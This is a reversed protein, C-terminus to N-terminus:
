RTPETEHWTSELEHQTEGTLMVIRMVICIFSSYLVFLESRFICICFCYYMCLFIPYSFVLIGVVVCIFSLLITCFIWIQFYMSFFLPIYVFIKSRFSDFLFLTNACVCVYIPPGDTCQSPSLLLVAHHLCTLSISFSSPLHLHLSVSSRLHFDLNLSTSLRCHHSM